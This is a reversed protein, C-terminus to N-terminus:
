IKNFIIIFCLKTIFPAYAPHNSQRTTITYKGTGSGPEITRISEKREGCEMGRRCITLRSFSNDYNVYDSCYILYNVSYMRYISRDINFWQTIPIRIRGNDVIYRQMQYIFIVCTACYGGEGPSVGNSRGICVFHPYGM